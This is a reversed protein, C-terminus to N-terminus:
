HWQAVPQCRTGHLPQALSALRGQVSGWHSMAALNEVWWKVRCGQSGDTRSLPSAPDSVAGHAREAEKFKGDPWLSPGPPESIMQM